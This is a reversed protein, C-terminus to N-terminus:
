GTQRFAACALLFFSSSRSTSKWHVIMISRFGVKRESFFNMVNRKKEVLLDAELPSCVLLPCNPEISGELWKELRSWVKPVKQLIEILKWVIM